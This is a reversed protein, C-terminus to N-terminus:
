AADLRLSQRFEAISVAKEVLETKESGEVAPEEVRELMWVEKVGL